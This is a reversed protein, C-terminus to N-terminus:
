DYKIIYLLSAQNAPLKPPNKLVEKCEVVVTVTRPKRLLWELFTPRPFHKYITQRENLRSYIFTEIAVTYRGKNFDDGILGTMISVESILEKSFSEMLGIKDRDFRVEDM